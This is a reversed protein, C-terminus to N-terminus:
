CSGPLIKSLADVYKTGNGITPIICAGNESCENWAYVVMTQAEVFNSHTCTFNIANLMLTQLEDSTPQVYYGAGQNIWPPPNYARPRPDWGTQVCVIGKHVSYQSNNSGAYAGNWWNENQEMLM